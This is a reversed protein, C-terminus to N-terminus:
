ARERRSSLGPLAFFPYSTAAPETATAARNERRPPARRIDILMPDSLQGQLHLNLWYVRPIVLSDRVPRPLTAISPAEDSEEIGEITVKALLLFANSETSTTVSEAFLEGKFHGAVAYVFEAYATAYLDNIVRPRLESIGLLFIARAKGTSDRHKGKRELIVPKYLISISPM